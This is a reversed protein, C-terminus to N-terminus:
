ADQFPAAARKDLFATMAERQDSTEFCSSFSAVEIALATDLDTHLGLGLAQKTARVAIPAQAAIESALKIAAPMLDEPAFVDNVLGISHAKAADIRRTSFLLERALGLGILRALRQTGGFGPTIGLGVEPQGFVANTSALRIDCSMALECGGGLAYGNVAGISPMPLQELTRFVRNGLESFEAADRRSMTAMERVDAGAVFARSGAGTVVVCRPDDDRVRGLAEGLDVLLDRNLANLARERNITLTCVHEVLEYTVLTM